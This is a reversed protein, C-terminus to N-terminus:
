AHHSLVKGDHSAIVEGETRGGPSGETVTPGDFCNDVGVGDDMKGLLKGYQRPLLFALLLKLVPNIHLCAPTRAMRCGRELYFADIGRGGNHKYPGAYVQRIGPCQAAAERVTHLMLSNVHLKRGQDACFATPLLLTDEVWMSTSVGALEGRRYGGLVVVKPLSFLWDTWRSFSNARRRQSMYSYKTRKYFELYVPYANEKFENADTVPRITFEKAAVRVQRRKSSDLSALSYSNVQDFLLLNLFSNAPESSPVGHQFANWLKAGPPVVLGASYSKVILLPRFFLPRVQRWYIGGREVVTARQAREAAALEEISM